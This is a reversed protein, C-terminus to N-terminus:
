RDPFLERLAKLSEPLLETLAVSEWEAYAFRWEGAPDQILDFRFRYYESGLRVLKRLVEAAGHSLAVECGVGARGDAAIGEPHVGLVHIVVGRYRALYDAILRVTGDKDRGEFDRYDAAFLGALGTVDKKEALAAGREILERIRVEESPPGCSAGFLGAAAGALVLAAFRRVPPSM